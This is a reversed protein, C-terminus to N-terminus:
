VQNDLRVPLGTITNLNILTQGVFIQQTKPFSNHTEGFLSAALIFRGAIHLFDIVVQLVRGKEIARGVISVRGVRDHFFIINGVIVDVDISLIQVQIKSSFIGAFFVGHTLGFLKQVGAVDPIGFDVRGIIIEPVTLIGRHDTM